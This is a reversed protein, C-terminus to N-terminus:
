TEDEDDRLLRDARAQEAPTLGAEDVRRRERVIYGLVTAGIVLMLAPGFWLLWTTPQVPPRFLVFDGYRATLYDIAADRSRDERVVLRYVEDRMDQALDANSSALSENQCVLCRLEELLGYYREREAPSDFSRVSEAAGATAVFLWMLALAAILRPMRMM